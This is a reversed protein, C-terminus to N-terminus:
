VIGVAAIVMRVLWFLSSSIYYIKWIVTCKERNVVGCAWVPDSNPRGPVVMRLEGRLMFM